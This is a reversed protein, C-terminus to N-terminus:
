VKVGGKGVLSRCDVLAKRRTTQFRNYGPMGRLRERAINVTRVACQVSRVASQVLESKGQQQDGATRCGEGGAHSQKSWSGTPGAIGMRLITRVVIARVACTARRLM